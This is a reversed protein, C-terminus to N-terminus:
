GCKAKVGCGYSSSMERGSRTPPQTLGLMAVQELSSATSRTHTSGVVERNYTLYEVVVGVIDWTGYSGFFASILLELVM